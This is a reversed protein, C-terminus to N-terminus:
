QERVDHFKSTVYWAEIKSLLTTHLQIYIFLIFCITVIKTRETAIKKYIFSILKNEANKSDTSKTPSHVFDVTMEHTALWLFSHFNKLTLV